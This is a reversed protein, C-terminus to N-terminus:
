KTCGTYLTLPSGKTQHTSHPVIFFFCGVLIVVVVSTAFILAKCMTYKSLPVIYTSSFKAQIPSPPSLENTRMYNLWFESIQGLFHTMCVGIKRRIRDVLFIHQKEQHGHYSHYWHQLHCFFPYVSKLGLCTYLSCVFHRNHVMEQNFNHCM